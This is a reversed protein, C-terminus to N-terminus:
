PTVEQIVLEFVYEKGLELFDEVKQAIDPTENRSDDAIADWKTMMTLKERVSEDDHLKGRWRTILSDRQM